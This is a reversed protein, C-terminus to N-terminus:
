WFPTNAESRPASHHNSFISPISSRPSVESRSMSLERWLADPTFHAGLQTAGRPPIHSPANCPSKTESAALTTCSSPAARAPLRTPISQFPLSSFIPDILIRYVVNSRPTTCISPSVALRQLRQCDGGCSPCTAILGQLKKRLAPALSEGGGGRGRRRRRQWWGLPRGKRETEARLIRSLRLSEASDM